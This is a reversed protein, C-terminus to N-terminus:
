QEEPRRRSYFYFGAGLSLVIAALAFMKMPETKHFDLTIIKNAIAIGSIMLIEAVPIVDSKIIISTSKFLEYAIVINLLLSFISTLEEVDIIGRAPEGNGINDIVVWVVHLSGSIMIVVILLAVLLLVGTAVRKM